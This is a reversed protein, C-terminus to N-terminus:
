CDPAPCARFPGLEGFDRYQRSIKPEALAREFSSEKRLDSKRRHTVTSEGPESGHETQVGCAQTVPRCERRCRSEAVLRVEDTVEALEGAQGRGLPSGGLCAGGSKKLVPMHRRKLTM